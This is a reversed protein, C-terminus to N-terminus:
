IDFVRIYWLKESTGNDNLDINIVKWIDFLEFDISVEWNRSRCIGNVLSASPIKKASGNPECGFIKALWFFGNYKKQM